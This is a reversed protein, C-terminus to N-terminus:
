ILTYTVHIYSIRYNGLALTAAEIRQWQAAQIHQTVYPLVLKVIDDKMINAMLSLCTASATSVTWADDDEDEQTFINNVM